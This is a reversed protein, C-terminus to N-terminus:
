NNLEVFKEVGYSFNSKPKVSVITLNAGAPFVKVTPVNAYQWKTAEDDFFVVTDIPEPITFKNQQNYVQTFHWNKGIRVIYRFREDNTTLGDIGYISYEKLYYMTSRWMTSGMIVITNRSDFNEKIYSIKESMRIDNKRIESYHFSTPIYPKTSYPDRDRFFQYLNFGIVLLLITVMAFTNKKTVYWLAWATLIVLASLYMMQHGAHDTRLFINFMLGPLIWIAFFLILVKNKKLVKKKKVILQFGAVLLFLMGIGFSLFLGKTLSEFISPIGQSFIGSLAGEKAFSSSVSLFKGIGGVVSLFFMLWLVTAGVFTSVAQVKAYRSLFYVGLVFLPTAFIAEQPRIGILFSFVIGIQLWWQKKLFIISYVVFALLTTIVPTIGYAYATLSFFYFTPGTLFLLSAILGVRRNKITKGVWYFVVTGIGSFIVSLMILSQHPDQIFQYVIRGLFIYLPYGPPAPTQQELSYQVIGIAYQPGDWHSQMHEVLPVRSLLAIFFLFISVFVDRKNM